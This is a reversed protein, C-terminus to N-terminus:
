KINLRSSEKDECYQEYLEPYDKKFKSSNFSHTNVVSARAYHTSDKPVYGQKVLDLILDKIKSQVEEAQKLKAGNALYINIYKTLDENPVKTEPINKIATAVEEKDIDYKLRPPIRMLMHYQYFHEGETIMMAIFEDDKEIEFINIEFNKDFLAFVYAKKLGTVAMYLQVQAYYSAPIGGYAPKNWNVEAHESVWKIEVVFNEFYANDYRYAIGDVNARFCPYDSNIIMFEPKGVHYGKDDFYPKVYNTLIFDELAKGKKININNSLDERYGEVKQKYIKLPSSYPNLGLIAGIDSGGIGKTRLELWDEEDIFSLTSLKTNGHLNFKHLNDM